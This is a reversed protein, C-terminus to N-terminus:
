LKTTEEIMKKNLKAYINKKIWEETSVEDIKELPVWKVGNNEDEKKHLIEKEDVELLYTLNLHIHSSVYKGKKVHGDVTLTELSFIDQKLPKVNKVGTEEKLEKIAVKLLNAEGDSHGGTWTWAQYINHYVMLVKTRQQNVAWSSATFHAFENERILLNDFTDMYKLITKKDKQEQENYPQYEEIKKKLDEQNM